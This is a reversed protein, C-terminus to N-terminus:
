RLFISPTGTTFAEKMKLSLEDGFARDLNVTYEILKGTPLPKVERYVAILDVFKQLKAQCESLSLAYVNLKSLESQLSTLELMCEEDDSALCLITKWADIYKATQSFAYAKEDLISKLMTISQPFDRSDVLELYGKKFETQVERIVHLHNIITETSEEPLFQKAEIASVLCSINKELSDTERQMKDMLKQIYSLVEMKNMLVEM